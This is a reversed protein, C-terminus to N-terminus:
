RIDELDQLVEPLVDLLDNAMLSREGYLDAAVDGALGHCYVGCLAADLVSIGQALFGTIMGTLVDGSGATALGSNGTPNIFIRGSPEGILTPAGKLILVSNWQRSFERVTEIPEKCIQNISRGILRSLEGYHPTLIRQGNKSGLFDAQGAFANLGDADIVMPKRIKKVLRRVLQSTEEEMSLGPGIALVDAWKVQDLAGV